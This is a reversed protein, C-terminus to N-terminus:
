GAYRYVTRGDKAKAEQVRGADVLAELAQATSREDAAIAQAVGDITVWGAARRIAEAANAALQEKTPPRRAAATPAPAAEPARTGPEVIQPVDDLSFRFVLYRYLLTVAGFVLLGLIGYFSVQSVWDTGEPEREDLRRPMARGPPPVAGATQLEVPSESAARRERDREDQGPLPGSALVVVKANSVAPGGKWAKALAAPAALWAWAGALAAAFFAARM